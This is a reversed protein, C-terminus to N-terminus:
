QHRLPHYLEANGKFRINRSDIGKCKRYVYSTLVCAPIVYFPIIYMLCVVFLVAPQTTGLASYISYIIHQHKCSLFALNFNWNYLATVYLSQDTFLMVVLAVLKDLILSLIFISYSLIFLNFSFKSNRMVLKHYNYANNDRLIFADDCRWKLILFFRKKHKFLSFILFMGFLPTLIKSLIQTQPIVSITLHIPLFLTAKMLFIRVSKFDTKCQYAIFIFKLLAVMIICTFFMTMDGLSIFFAVLPYAIEFRWIGFWTATCNLETPFPLPLNPYLNFFLLGFSYAFMCFCETVILFFLFTYIIFKVKYNFIDIDFELPKYNWKSVEKKFRSYYHFIRNVLFCLWILLLLTSPPILVGFIVIYALSLPDFVLNM